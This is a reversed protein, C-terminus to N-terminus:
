TAALARQWKAKWHELMEKPTLLRRGSSDLSQRALRAAQDDRAAWKHLARAGLSSNAVIWARVRRDLEGALCRFTRKAHALTREILGELDRDDIEDIAHMAECKWSLLPTQKSTVSLSSIRLRLAQQMAQLQRAEPNTRRLSQTRRLFQATEDWWTLAPDQFARALDDAM